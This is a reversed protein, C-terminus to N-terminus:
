QSYGGMIARIVDLSKCVNVSLGRWYLCLGVQQPPPPQHTSKCCFLVLKCNVYSMEIVNTLQSYSYKHHQWGWYSFTYDRLDEIGRERKKCACPECCSLCGQKNEQKDLSQQVCAAPFHGPLSPISFPLFFQIFPLLSGLQLTIFVTCFCCNRDCVFYYLFVTSLFIDKVQFTQFVM